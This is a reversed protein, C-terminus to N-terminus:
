LIKEYFMVYSVTSLSCFVINQKNTQKNTQQGVRSNQSISNYEGTSVTRPLSLARPGSKDTTSVPVTKQWFAGTTQKVCIYLMLVLRLVLM